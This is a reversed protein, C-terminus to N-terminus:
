RRMFKKPKNSNLFQAQRASKRASGASFVPVKRMTQDYPTRIEYNIGRHSSNIARITQVEQCTEVCRGCKVCKGKDYVLVNSETVVPKRGTEDHIYTPERILLYESLTQLECNNNRVCRLCEQPHNALLLEIITKRITLIRLNNTVINMGESVENACAAMLKGRGDCEVVCLRCVSRKCLDRHDCLTPIYVGVKQAAELIRTGEPVTVKFGDITLSINKATNPKTHDM